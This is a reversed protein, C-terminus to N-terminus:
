LFCVTHKQCASITQIYVNKSLLDINYPRFIDLPRVVESWGQFTISSFRRKLSWYVELAHFRRFSKVKFILHPLALADVAYVRCFSKARRMGKELKSGLSSDLRLETVFGRLLICRLEPRLPLVPAWDRSRVWHGRRTSTTNFYLLTTWHMFHTTTRYTM